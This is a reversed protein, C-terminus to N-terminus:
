PRREVLRDLKADIRDLHSRLAIVADIATKDAAIMMERQAMVQQEVLAIRQEIKGAYWIVSAAVSLTTIIHGLQLEKKLHWGDIASPKVPCEDDGAPCGQPNTAM